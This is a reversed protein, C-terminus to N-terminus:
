KNTPRYKTTGPYSPWFSSQATPKIFPAQNGGPNSIKRMTADLRGRLDRQKDQLLSKRRFFGPRSKFRNFQTGLITAHATCYALMCVATESCLSSLCTVASVFLCTLLVRAITLCSSTLLNGRCSLVCAVISSSYRRHPGHRPTM